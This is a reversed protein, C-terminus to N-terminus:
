IENELEKIQNKLNKIQEERKRKATDSNEEEKNDLEERTAKRIEYGHLEYNLHDCHWDIEVHSCGKEKLEALLKEVEDIRIPSAESGYRDTGIGLITEPYEDDVEDDTFFEEWGYIEESYVSEIFRKYIAHKM